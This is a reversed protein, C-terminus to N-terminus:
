LLSSTRHIVLRTKSTCFGTLFHCIASKRRLTHLREHEPRQRHHGQGGAPDEDEAGHPRRAAGAEGGLPIAAGAPRDQRGRLGVRVERLGPEQQQSFLNM